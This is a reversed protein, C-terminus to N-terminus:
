FIMALDVKYNLIIDYIKKIFFDIIANNEQFQFSYLGITQVRKTYLIM